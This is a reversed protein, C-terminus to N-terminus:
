HVISNKETLYKWYRKPMHQIHLKTNKRAPINVSKFYQQWLQQYIEESDDYISSAQKGNLMEDSFQIQVSTTIKLDYYLGYKRKGDYIMWRQNAYCDTFHKAIESVKQM